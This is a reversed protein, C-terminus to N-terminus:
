RILHIEFDLKLKSWAKDATLVPLKKSQALSLCARDGFSLGYKKTENILTAALYAQEKNFEKIDKILDSILQRSIKIDINHLQLITAVESVNVASMMGTSLHPLVQDGGPEENIMALLASSDIVYSSM